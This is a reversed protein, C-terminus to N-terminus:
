GGVMSAHVEAELNKVPPETGYRPLGNQYSGGALTRQMIMAM